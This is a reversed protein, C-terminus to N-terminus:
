SGGGTDRKAAAFPVCNMVPTQADSASHADPQQPKVEPLHAAGNTALSRPSPQPKPSACGLLLAKFALLCALPLLVLLAPAAAPAAADGAADVADAGAGAAGAWPFCNMVPAHVESASQAEAHQPKRLPLHAPGTTACSRSPPHPNPLAVGLSSAALASCPRASPLRPGVYM